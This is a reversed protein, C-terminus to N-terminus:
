ALVEVTLDVNNYLREHAVADAIKSADATEQPSEHEATIRFKTGHFPTKVGNTTVIQFGDNWDNLPQVTSVDTILFLHKKKERDIVIINKDEPTARQTRM